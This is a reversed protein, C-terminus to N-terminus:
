LTNIGIETQLSNQILVVGWYVDNSKEKFDCEVGTVAHYLEGTYYMGLHAM